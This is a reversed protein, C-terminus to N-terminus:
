LNKKPYRKILFHLFEKFKAPRKNKYDNPLYRYIHMRDQDYLDNVMFIVGDETSFWGGIQTLYSEREPENLFHFTKGFIRFGHSTLMGNIEKFDLKKFFPPLRLLKKIIKQNPTEM